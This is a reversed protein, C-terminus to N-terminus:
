FGIREQTLEAGVMRGLLGSRFSLSTAVLKLPEGDGRGYRPDGILPYGAASFHRRIQHLRGGRITVAVTSRDKEADYSLIEYSTVASQGDLSADFSGRSGSRVELKGHAVARYAKRVVGSAFARSLEAAARRDHAFVMVGVAERDLRHALHAQRKDRQAWVEVQRLISCHDGFANGQALLGAPKFWFSYAALDVLLEAPPPARKLLESDYGLEVQDGPSLSADAKRVRQFGRSASRRVRLAGKALANKIAGRSLGTHRQLFAGLELPDDEAVARSLTFRKEGEVAAMM